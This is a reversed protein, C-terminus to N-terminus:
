NTQSKILHPLPIEPVKKKSSFEMIEELYGRKVLLIVISNILFLM